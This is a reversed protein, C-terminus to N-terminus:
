PLPRFLLAHVASFIATNAGIGLALTMVAVATFGPARRLGRAAFKLDQRIRELSGLGTMLRVEEKQYTVNGFRRRAAGRPDSQAGTREQQMAELELHFRVEEDLDREHSGRRLLTRLRYRLADFVSM